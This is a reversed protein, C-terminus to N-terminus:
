ASKKTYRNKIFTYVGPLLSVVVVLIVIEHIHQDANPIIKTLYYGGFVMSASWLFGGFINYSIFTRYPMTGVGAFIPIFTRVIPVFRALIVAKPGYKSFFIRTKQIYEPNLFFSDPKSFVTNGYKRGLYYGFSDGLVAAVFVTVFLPLIPLYGQSALFGATFLLSDGPLIPFVCSELFVIIGIGILGGAEIITTIDFM